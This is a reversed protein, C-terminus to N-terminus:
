GQGTLLRIDGTGSRAVITRDSTTSRLQSREKGHRSEATIQYPADPVTATVRGDGSRMELRAPPAAFSLNITGTTTRAVVDASRLRDGAILGDGGVLRLRGSTGYVRIPGPSSVEVDQALERVVVGEDASRIVVRVGPPVRVHYRAGCDGFVITCDAGLRLAGRDFSWSANDDHAAKGRLWRDVRVEGAAGPVIRLGGIASTITVPAGPSPHPFTRSTHVEKADLEVGCSSTVAVLGAMAAATAAATIRRM